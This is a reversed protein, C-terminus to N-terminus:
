FIRKCYIHLVYAVDVYFVQLMYRFCIFCNSYLRAVDPDVNAVNM